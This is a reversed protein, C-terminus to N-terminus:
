DIPPAERKTPVGSQLEPLLWGVLWVTGFLALGSGVYILLLKLATM